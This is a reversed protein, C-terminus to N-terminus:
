GAKVASGVALPRVIPPAKPMRGHEVDEIELGSVAITAVTDRNDHCGHGIFRWPRELRDQWRALGADEARVHELFLLRGGPRLVRTVEALSATPDEVSCLVLTCVVTDLSSDDVPLSDAAAVVVRTPRAVEAARERLRRAMPEFPETLILEGVDEPYHELNLGTGAGIELTRGRARSLLEARRDRLGARETGALMRDYSAAFLRGWTANYARRAPGPM